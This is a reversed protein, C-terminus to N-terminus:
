VPESKWCTLTLALNEKSLAALEAASFELNCQGNYEYDLHITAEELMESLRARVDSVVEVAEAFSQVRLVVSGERAQQGSPLVQGKTRSQTVEGSLKAPLLAPDFNSGSLLVSITRTHDMPAHTGHAVDGALDPKPRFRALATNLSDPRAVPSM